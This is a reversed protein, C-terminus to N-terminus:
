SAKRGPSAFEGKCYQADLLRDEYFRKAQDFRNFMTPTMSRSTMIAGIHLGFGTQLAEPMEDRLLMVVRRSPDFGYRQSWFGWRLILERAFAAPCNGVLLDPSVLRIEKVIRETSFEEHFHKELHAV